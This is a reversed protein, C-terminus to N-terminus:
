VFMDLSARPARDLKELNQLVIGKQYKYHAVVGIMSANDSSLYKLSPFYVKAKYKKALKRVRKRLNMNASVGGGFVINKYSENKLARELKVLLATFVANQFSAALNEMNKNIEDESMKRLLRNFATKLGSFSFDLGQHKQMGIPLKFSDNKGNKALREIVAGGPYGLGLMRAAKDLAEGAADDLTEGIIKYKIHDTVLVLQTHGGSIIFALFPFEINRNPKGASNQVYSSYIHGEIHDVPILPKNHKKALNKATNIGVELAPALGPGFTVAFADIKEISLRTRKLALHIAPNIKTLHERKALSPYVGGYPQHVKIQSFEVHTITKRGETIAISTEDCSTDISLIKM